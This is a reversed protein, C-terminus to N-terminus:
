RQYNLKIIMDQIYYVLGDDGIIRVMGIIESNVFVCVSYLSNPLAKDIVQPKYIGWGVSKRLQNYEEASPIKELIEYKM